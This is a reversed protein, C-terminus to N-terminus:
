AGFTLPVIRPCVHLLHPLVAAIPGPVPVKLDKIHELKTFAHFHNTAKGHICRVVNAMLWLAMIDRSASPHIQQQYQPERQHHVSQDTTSGRATEADEQAAGHVFTM